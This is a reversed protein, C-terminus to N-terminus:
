NRGPERGQQMDGPRDMGGPQDMGSPNMGGPQGMGFPNGGMGLLALVDELTADEPLEAVQAKFAALDFDGGQFGFDQRDGGMPRGGGMIGTERFVSGPTYSQVAGDITVTGAEYFVGDESDLASDPTRIGNVSM